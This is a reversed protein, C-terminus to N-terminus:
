EVFGIERHFYGADKPLEKVLKAPSGAYLAFPEELSRNLLSAAGLVSYDPLVAGGLMVCRTGVFCHHGVRIPTANQRNELVDISHTLLQSQYGAITTFAGIDIRATCDIHHSKTIASHEGMVLAPDRDPQHRFHPTTDGKPFGTIWNGRGITAFAGLEMRDLHIAVTLHDIRSGECM